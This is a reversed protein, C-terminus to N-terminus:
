AWLVAFGLGICALGATVGVLRLTAGGPADVFLTLLLLGMVCGAVLGVYRRATTQAGDLFGTICAGVQMVAGDLVSRLGPSLEYQHTVADGTVSEAEIGGPSQDTTTTVEANGEADVITEIPAAHQGSTPPAPVARCGALLMAVVAFIVGMVVLTGISRNM